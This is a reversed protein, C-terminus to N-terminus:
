QKRQNPFYVRGDEDFAFYGEDFGLGFLTLVNRYYNEKEIPASSLITRILDAAGFGDWAPQNIKLTNVDIKEPPMNLERTIKVMPEFHTKLEQYVPDKPSMMGAWLYVRISNYSGITNDESDVNVLDGRTTFTAWDPSIGAPASRILVRASGEFVDLWYKDELAFRKILFLPYYSPNLKVQDDHEFGIRGPLLVKGLNEIDRVQTKLLELMAHAKETYDPRDWLRGAELLCYAIWMDSDVANNTDLITWQSGDRGWLWAAFNKTIDGGSLNNETWALMDEFTERDNDVLAFFMAYSQGESTTVARSDSYDVVRAGEMGVAKFDQWMPWQAYVSSSLGLALTLALVLKKM